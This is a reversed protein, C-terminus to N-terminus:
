LICYRRMKAIKLMRTYYDRSKTPNFRKRTIATDTRRTVGGRTTRLGGGGGRSSNGRGRYTSGRSSRLPISKPPGM